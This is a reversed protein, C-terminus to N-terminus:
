LLTKKKKESLSDVSEWKSLPCAGYQNTFIKKSIPCGCESCIDFIMVKRSPCTLCVELRDRAQKKQEDSPNFSIGWAEIIKIIDM